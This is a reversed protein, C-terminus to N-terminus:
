SHSDYDSVGDRQQQVWQTHTHTATRKSKKLRIRDRAGCNKGFVILPIACVCM